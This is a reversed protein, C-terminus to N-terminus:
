GRRASGRITIGEETDCGQHDGEGDIMLTREGCGGGCADAGRRRCAAITSGRHGPVEFRMDSQAERSQHNACLCRKGALQGARAHSPRNRGHGRGSRSGGGERCGSVINWEGCRVDVGCGSM